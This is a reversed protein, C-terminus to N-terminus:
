NKKLSNIESDYENRKREEGVNSEEGENNLNNSIGNNSVSSIQSNHNFITNTTTLTGTNHTKSSITVNPSLKSM